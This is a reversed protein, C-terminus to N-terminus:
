PGSRKEWFNGRAKPPDPAGDLVHYRPGVRTMFGFPMEIPEAMKTYIGFEVSYLASDIPFFVGLIAREGQSKTVGSSSSQAVAVPLM